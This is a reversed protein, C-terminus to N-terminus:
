GTSRSVAVKTTLASWGAGDAADHDVLFLAPDFHDHGVVLEAQRDAAAALVDAERLWSVL